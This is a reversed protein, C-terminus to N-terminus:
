LWGQKLAFEVEQRLEDPTGTTYIAPDQRFISLALMYVSQSYEGPLMGDEHVHHLALSILRAQNWRRRQEETVLGSPYAGGVVDRSDLRSMVQDILPTSLPGPLTAPRLPPTAPAPRGFRIDAAGTQNLTM